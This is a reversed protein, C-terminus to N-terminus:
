TEGVFKRITADTVQTCMSKIRRKPGTGIQKYCDAQNSGDVELVISTGMENKTWTRTQNHETLVWDLVPGEIPALANAVEVASSYRLGPDVSLCKKVVTKLRAPVHASFATRDPFLGAKVDAIFKDRDFAGLASYGKWQENFSNAGNCMRYLTLGFQYIDYALDFSTQGALAEPPIIPTYIGNPTAVGGVMQKALGFDSLLADGRDSFLINDPKIDFHILGKSHINHLGSLVQCATTIVQRLSIHGDTILSKLSGRAYYPMAIFVSDSDECAYFVQVVNPHASAYLSRSEDFYNAPSVLAHKALQKIVIEAGLQHDQAVFASSNKGDHGIERLKSFKVQGIDYPNFM